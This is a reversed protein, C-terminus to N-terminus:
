FFFLFTFLLFFFLDDLESNNLARLRTILTRQPHSGGQVYLPLLPHVHKILLQQQGLVALGSPVSPALLLYVFTCNNARSYIFKAFVCTSHLLCPFTCQQTYPPSNCHVLNNGVNLCLPCFRGGICGWGCAWVGGDVCGGRCSLERTVSSCTPTRKAEVCKWM